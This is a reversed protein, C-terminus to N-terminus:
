QLEFIWKKNLEFKDTNNIDTEKYFYFNASVM